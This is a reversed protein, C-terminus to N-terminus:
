CEEKEILEDEAQGDSVSAHGNGGNYTRGVLGERTAARSWITKGAVSRGIVSWQGGPWVSAAQTLEAVIRLLQRVRRRESLVGRAEIVHSRPQAPLRQAREEVQELPIHRTWGASLVEHFRWADKDRRWYLRIGVQQEQLVAALDALRKDLGAHRQVLSEDVAAAYPGRPQTVDIASLVAATTRGYATMLQKGVEWNKTRQIAGDARFTWHLRGVKREGEWTMAIVMARSDLGHGVLWNTLMLVSRGDQRMAMWEEAGDIRGRTEVWLTRRVEEPVRAGIDEWAVTRGQENRVRHRWFFRQDRRQYRLRLTRGVFRIARLGEEIANVGLELRHTGLVARMRIDQESGVPYTRRSVTSADM